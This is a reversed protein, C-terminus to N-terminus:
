VLGARLAWLAVHLRTNMHLKKFIHQMHEKVTEISIELGEAIQKNKWGAALRKVIEVERASLPEDIEPGPRPAALASTMRRLENRTWISEGAAGLAVSRATHTPSDMSTFIRVPLDPFEPRLRSLAQLGNGKEFLVEMLVVDPRRKGVLEIAQQGTSAEGM